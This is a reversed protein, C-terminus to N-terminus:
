IDNHLTILFTHQSSGPFHQGFPSFILTPLAQEVYAKNKASESKTTELKLVKGLRDLTLKITVSGYDPLRLGKKLRLAVEDRYQEEKKKWQGVSGTEELTLADVQLSVLEKPVSAMELQVSPTSAQMLDGTQKLKSLKEQVKKLKAEELQRAAEKAAEEQKKKQIEAATPQAEKKPTEQSAVKPKSVESKKVTKKPGEIKKPAEVVKKSATPKTITKKEPPPITPTSKEKPVTKQPPTELVAPLSEQVAPAPIVEPLAAVLSEKEVPSPLSLLSVTQAMLKKPHAAPSIPTHSAWFFGWFLFLFHISIVLLAASLWDLRQSFFCLHKSM